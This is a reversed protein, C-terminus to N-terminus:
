RNQCNVKHTVFRINGREYNGDNDIRDVDLGRPDIQLEDVVYDVFDDSSKFCVKIGRGGYRSYHANSVNYCRQKMSGYTHRLHGVITLRYTDRNPKQRATAAVGKGTKQYRAVRRKLSAKGKDSELWREQAAKGKASKAYQKRAAKGAESHNSRGVTAKGKATQRYRKGAAKQAETQM